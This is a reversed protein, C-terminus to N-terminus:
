NSKRSAFSALPWSKSALGINLLDMSAVFALIHVLVDNSIGVLQYITKATPMPITGGGVYQVESTPLIAGFVFVDQLPYSLNYQWIKASMDYAFCQKLDGEAKGGVVILKGDHLHSAHGYAAQESPTEAQCMNKQVNIRHLQNSPKKMDNLGGFIMCETDSIMNISAHMLSPMSAIKIQQWQSTFYNFEHMDNCVFGYSDYGGM